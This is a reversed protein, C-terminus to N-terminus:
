AAVAKCKREDLIIKMETFLMKNLRVTEQISAVFKLQTERIYDVNEKNTSVIKYKVNFEQGDSDKPKRYNLGLNEQIRNATLWLSNGTDESRHSTLLKESDMWIYKQVANEFQEKKSPDNRDLRILRNEMMRRALRKQEDHTLETTKADRLFPLVESIIKEQLEKIMTKADQNIQKKSHKVKFSKLDLNIMLGNDCYSRQLILDFHLCARNNASNTMSILINLEKDMESDGFMLFPSSFVVMHKAFNKLDKKRTNERGFVVTTSNTKKYPILGAKMLDLMQEKSSVAYYSKNDNGYYHSKQELLARQPDNQLLNELQDEVSLENNVSVLTEARRFSLTNTM